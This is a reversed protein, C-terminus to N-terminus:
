VWPANRDMQSGGGLLAGTSLHEHTLTGNECAPFYLGARSKRDPFRSGYDLAGRTTTHSDSPRGEAAETRVRRQGGYPGTTWDLNTWRLM